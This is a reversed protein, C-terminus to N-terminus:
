DQEKGGLRAYWNAYQKNQQLSYAVSALTSAAETFQQILVDLDADNEISLKALQAGVRMAADNWKPITDDLEILPVLVNHDVAGIQPDTLATTVAYTRPFGGDHGIELEDLARKITPYSKGTLEQLQPITVGKPGAKMLATRVARKTRPSVRVPIDDVAM